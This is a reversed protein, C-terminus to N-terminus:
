LNKLPIVQGSPTSGYFKPAPKTLLAGICVMVCLASIINMVFSIKLLKGSWEQSVLIRRSALYDYNNEPEAVMHYNHPLNAIDEEENKSLKVRFYADYAM